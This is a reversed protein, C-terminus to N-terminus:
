FWASACTKEWSHCSFIHLTHLFIYPQMYRLSIKRTFRSSTFIILKLHKGRPVVIAAPMPADESSLEAPKPQPPSPAHEKKKKSLGELLKRQSDVSTSDPHTSSSPSTHYGGNGGNGRVGTNHPDCQPSTSKPTQTGLEGPLAIQTNNLSSRNFQAAGADYERM